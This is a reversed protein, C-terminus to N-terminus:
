IIDSNKFFTLCDNKSNNLVIILAIEKDISDITILRTPRIILEKVDEIRYLSLIEIHPRLKLYTGGCILYKDLMSKVEEITLSNGEVLKLMNTAVTAKLVCYEKVNM